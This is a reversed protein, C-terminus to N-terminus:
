LWPGLHPAQATRGTLWAALAPGEGGASRKRVVDVALATVLDAPLDGFTVGVGLDVAHVAVERTRMWPIETAPVTRGQATVVQAEWAEPALDDLAAALEDASGRVLRRLEAPPLTAGEAIEASRQEPSAYMRSETGTAAWSVLRQLARANFHLHAVLHRRSWGPLGTASDMEEDTVKELAGLFIGTAQDM